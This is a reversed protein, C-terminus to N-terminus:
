LKYICATVQSANPEWDMWQQVNIRILSDDEIIKNAVLFDSLIKEYNACDRKRKDPVNMCYMIGVQGEIAKLAGSQKILYSNALVVWNRYRKTKVRGKGPINAYAANVSPPIPLTITLDPTSDLLTRLYFKM